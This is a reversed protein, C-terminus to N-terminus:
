AHWFALTVALVAGDRCPQTPLWFVCWSHQAAAQLLAAAVRPSLPAVWERVLFGGRSCLQCLCGYAALWVREDGEWEQM